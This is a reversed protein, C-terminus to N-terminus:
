VIQVILFGMLFTSFQQQIRWLGILQFMFAAVKGFVILHEEFAIVVIDPCCGMWMFGIWCDQREIHAIYVILEKKNLKQIQNKEINRRAEKPPLAFLSYVFHLYLYSLCYGSKEHILHSNFDIPLFHWKCHSWLLYYNSIMIKATRCLQKNPM